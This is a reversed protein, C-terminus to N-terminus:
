LGAALLSHVEAPAIGESAISTKKTSLVSFQVEANITHGM